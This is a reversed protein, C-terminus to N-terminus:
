CVKAPIRSYMLPSSSIDGNEVYIPEGPEKRPRPLSSFQNQQEVSTPSLTPRLPSPKGGNGSTARPRPLSSFELKSAAPPRDYTSPVSHDEEMVIENRYPSHLDPEKALPGGRKSKPPRPPPPPCALMGLPRTTKILNDDSYSENLSAGSGGVNMFPTPPGTTESDSSQHFNSSSATSDNSPGRSHVVASPRCSFGM